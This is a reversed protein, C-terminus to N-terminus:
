VDRQIRRLNFINQVFATSFILIRMKHETYIKEFITGNILHYPFFYPLALFAFSSMVIRHMRKAHQFFLARSVSESSTIRIAKEVPFITKCVRRLIVNYACQKCKYKQLFSNGIIRGQYCICM